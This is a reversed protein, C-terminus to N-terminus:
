KTKVPCIKNFDDWSCKPCKPILTNHWNPKECHKFHNEARTITTNDSDSTTAEDSDTGEQSDGAEVGNESAVEEEEEAQNEIDSSNEENYSDNESTNEANRYAKEKEILDSLLKKNKIVCKDDGLAALRDLFTNLARPMTVDDNHPLLVYEVLKAINIVPRSNHTQKSFDAPIGSYLIKRLPWAICCNLLV